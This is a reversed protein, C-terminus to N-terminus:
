HLCAVRLGGALFAVIALREHLAAQRRRRSVSSPKFGVLNSWAPKWCARGHAACKARRMSEADSELMGSECGIKRVVGGVSKREGSRGGKVTREGSRATKRRHHSRLRGVGCLM